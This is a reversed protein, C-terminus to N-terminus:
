TGGTLTLCTNRVLCTWSLNCHSEFIISDFGLNSALWAAQLMVTAEATNIDDVNGKEGRNAAAFLKDSDDHIVAGLGM